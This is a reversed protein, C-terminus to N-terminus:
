QPAGGPERQDHQDRDVRTLRAPGRTEGYVLQKRLDRRLFTIKVASRCGVPEYGERSREAVFQKARRLSVTHHMQVAFIKVGLAQLDLTRLLEYEGGEIDLKLLDIRADGLEKMLSQLTRGPVEIYRNSEYLGAPSVSHSGADHTVQLRVPGDVVAIAAHNATFREGGQAEELASQVYEAVADFSRVTAGYRDILDIDFSIDGGAGVCYCVWAPEIVQDPMTWGGYPSGLETLGLTQELQVRHMHHEFWRRRLANHIKHPRLKRAAASVRATAAIASGREHPEGRYTDQM